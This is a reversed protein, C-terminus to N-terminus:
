DLSKKAGDIELDTFMTEYLYRNYGTKSGIDGFENRVQTYTPRLMWGKKICALIILAAGKGKKGKMAAHMKQLKCGDTDNIMKDKLTERKTPKDNPLLNELQQPETQVNIQQVKTPHDIGGGRQTFEEPECAEAAIRKCEEIFAKGIAQLSDYKKKDNNAYWGQIIYRKNWRALQNLVVSLTNEECWSEFIDYLSSQPDAMLKRDFGQELPKKDRYHNEWSYSLVASKYLSLIATIENKM